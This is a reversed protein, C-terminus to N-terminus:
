SRWRQLSVTGLGLYARPSPIRLAKYTWGVTQETLQLPAFAPLCRGALPSYEPFNEPKSKSPMRRWTEPTQFLFTHGNGRLQLSRGTLTMAFANIMASFGDTALSM